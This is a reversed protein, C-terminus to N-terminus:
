SAAKDRRRHRWFRRGNNTQAYAFEAPIMLEVETGAGPNSRIELQGGIAKARERMGILGWHGARGGANLIKPDIGKGDDRIRLRFTREEYRIEAEIETANAHKYANRLLERGIRYAEDQILPNLNRNGSLAKSVYGRVGEVAVRFAPPKPQCDQSSALEKGAQTLLKLLDSEPPQGTRLDQITDRGEAIAQETIDIARDLTQEAQQNFFNNANLDTNRLYDYATGHLQNTGSKTIVM